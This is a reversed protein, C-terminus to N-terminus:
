ASAHTEFRAVYSQMPTVTYIDPWNHYSGAYRMSEESVASCVWTYDRRLAPASESTVIDIAICTIALLSYSDDVQALMFEVMKAADADKPHPYLDIVHSSAILSSLPSLVVGKLTAQVIGIDDYTAGEQVVVFEHNYKGDHTEHREGIRILTGLMGDTRAFGVMGVRVDLPSLNVVCPGSSKM